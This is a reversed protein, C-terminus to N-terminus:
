LEIVEALVQKPLVDMICIDYIGDDNSVERHDIEDEQNKLVVLFEYLHVIGRAHCLRHCGLQM